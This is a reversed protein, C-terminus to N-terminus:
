GACASYTSACLWADIRDSCSVHRSSSAGSDFIMAWTSSEYPDSPGGIEGSM